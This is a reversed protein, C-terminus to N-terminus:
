QSRNPLLCTETRACAPSLLKDLICLPTHPPTPLQSFFSIGQPVAYRSGPNREGIHDEQQPLYLGDFNVKRLFPASSEQPMEAKRGTSAPIESWTTPNNSEWCFFNTQLTAWTLTLLDTKGVCRVM